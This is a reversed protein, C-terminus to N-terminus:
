GHALKQKAREMAVHGRLDKGCRSCFGAEEMLFALREEVRKEIMRELQVESIPEPAEVGNAVPPAHHGNGNGNQKAAKAARALVLRERLSNNQKLKMEAAFRGSTRLRTIAQLIARAPLKLDKMWDPNTERLEKMNLFGQADANAVMFDLVARVKKTLQRFKTGEPKTTPRKDSEPKPLVGRKQLGYLVDYGRPLIGAFEPKEAMARKWDVEGDPKTFTTAIEVVKKQTETLGDTKKKSTQNM